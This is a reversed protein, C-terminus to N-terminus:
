VASNLRVGSWVVVVNGVIVQPQVQGPDTAMNGLPWLEVPVDVDGGSRVTQELSAPLFDWCVTGGHGHDISLNMSELTLLKSM